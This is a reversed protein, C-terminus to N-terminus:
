WSMNFCECTAPHNRLLCNEHHDCHECTILLRLLESMCTNCVHSSHPCSFAIGTPNTIRM